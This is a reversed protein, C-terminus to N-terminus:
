KVDRIYNLIHETFLVAGDHNLHMDDHFLDLNNWFLDNTNNLLVNNEKCIDELWENFAVNNICAPSVSM